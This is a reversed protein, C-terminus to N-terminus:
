RRLGQIKEIWAVWAPFQAKFAARRRVNEAEHGANAMVLHLAHRRSALLLRRLAHLVVISTM